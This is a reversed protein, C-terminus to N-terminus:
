WSLEPPDGAIKDCDNKPLTPAGDGVTDFRLSYIATDGLTLKKSECDFEHLPRRRRPTGVGSPTGSGWNVSKQTEAM